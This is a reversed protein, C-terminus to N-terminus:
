KTTSHLGYDILSFDWKEHLLNSFRQPTSVVKTSGLPRLTKHFQNKVKKAFIKICDIAKPKTRFSFYVVMVLSIMLFFTNFCRKGQRNPMNM